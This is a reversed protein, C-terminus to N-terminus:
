RFTKQLLFGLADTYQWYYIPLYTYTYIGKQKTDKDWDNQSNNRLPPNKSLLQKSKVTFYLKRIITVLLNSPFSANWHILPLNGFKTVIYCVTMSYLILCYGTNISYYHKWQYTVWALSGWKGIEPPSGLRSFCPLSFFNSVNVSCQFLNGM